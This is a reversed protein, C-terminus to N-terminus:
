IFFPPHPPTQPNNWGSLTHVLSSNHIHMMLRSDPGDKHVVLRVGRAAKGKYPHVYMQSRMHMLCGTETFEFEDAEAKSGVLEIASDEAAAARLYLRSEEHVIRGRVVVSKARTIPSSKADSGIPSVVEGDESDRLLARSKCKQLIDWHPHSSFVVLSKKSLSSELLGFIFSAIAHWRSGDAHALLFKSPRRLSEALHWLLPASSSHTELDETIQLHLSILSM